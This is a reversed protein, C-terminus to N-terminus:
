RNGFGLRSYSAAVRGVLDWIYSAAMRGVAIICIVRNYSRAKSV